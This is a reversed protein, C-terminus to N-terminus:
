MSPGFSFLESPNIILMAFMGRITQALALYFTRGHALMSIGKGISELLPGGGQGSERAGKRVGLPLCTHRFVSALDADGHMVDCAHIRELDLQRLRNGSSPRHRAHGHILDVLHIGPVGFLV